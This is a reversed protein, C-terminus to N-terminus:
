LRDRGFWVVDRYTEPSTDGETSICLVRSESTLGLRQRMTEANNSEMIWQLLGTTVAGSEGSIIQQDGALPAGLIRMGIAAVDDSCSGYALPYDRLLEWSLPNPEGCALGAMLTALDGSVAHPKGDNERASRYFCDAAEPEVILFVPAAAGLVAVFFGVIAGAFAGVGAQLLVHTPGAAGQARLQELTEHALTTYGQMIATPVKTYGPWATDQITIWGQERARGSAMRVCDDYNLDTITCEAGHARIADRRAAESGAPMYIVARQGFQEAAWAVGRGHNGDTTSCFTIEGLARRVAPGYLDGYRLEDISRGLREALVMAVAYAGGLVKFANLGFRHSEDKIILEGLGFRKALNCLRVCPTPRYGPISRHFARVRAAVEGDLWSVDAGHPPKRRHENFIIKIQPM